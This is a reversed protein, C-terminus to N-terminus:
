EKFIHKRDREIAPKTWAEPVFRWNTHAKANITGEKEIKQTLYYRLDRDSMYVIRNPIDKMAIGAGRTLLEGGGNGRYSSMVVRYWAKEDFPRGDSLQLIRVKQGDPKTVDVEYDIGTASDFNFTLNKFGYRQMDNQTRETILMIHDDPSQMTNVWLDYSMELHKRIEEGTMRLVYIANEFRCLKFMDSMYVPGEQIKSDFSLPANFSIDAGTHELLVDHIYDTFAAPGFFSDRTRLVMPCTGIQREVYARVSDITPQFHRMYDEDLPLQSVDVIEGRREGIHWRGKPANPVPKGDPTFGPPNSILTITAVAVKQANCSPDLCPIGNITTARETHDHGFFIADFGGVQEAIAKTADEEYEPTVIGGDWGSHFLGIIVDAKEETKLVKVWHRASAVMEEFRMGKWMNEHLWNPIAPTLMGLIAIRVGKREIITYPPTYPKETSTNIINAGLVPCNLESIWKDYVAHGTEVDHNGFTQADYKLYNIVEAAINPRDTKIFNTYYCVPQGQLIDGNDIVIVNDGYLKRQENLFTSVRAMTGAMPKRETFNYPFFCGHVDSTEIIRLELIMPKFASAQQPTISMGTVLTFLSILFQKM